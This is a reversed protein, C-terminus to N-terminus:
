AATRSQKKSKVEVPPAPDSGEFAIKVVQPWWEAARIEDWGKREAVARSAARMMHQNHAQQQGTAGQKVGLEYRRVYDTMMEALTRRHDIHGTKWHLTRETMPRAHQHPPWDVSTLFLRLHHDQERTFDFDDIYSHFKIWAGEKAEAQMAVVLDQFSFLLDESPWEDDSIVFSWRTPANKVARHISPDGRGQWPEEIVVDAYERAVALTEDPSEQVVVVLNRFWPRVYPLLKTLREACNWYGGCFTIDRWPARPHLEAM